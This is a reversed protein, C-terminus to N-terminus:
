HPFNLKALNCKPTLLSQSFDISGRIRLDWVRRQKTLGLNKAIREYAFAPDALMACLRLFAGKGHIRDFRAPSTM